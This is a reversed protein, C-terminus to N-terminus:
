YWMRLWRVEGIWEEATTTSLLKDLAKILVSTAIQTSLIIGGHYPYRQALVVFDRINFTLICRGHSTAGLLQQEDSADAVMWMNPTRTVDHGRQILANMLSIRSADADLHLCPRTL